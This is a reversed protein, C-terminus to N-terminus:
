QAVLFGQIGYVGSEPQVLGATKTEFKKLVPFETFGSKRFGHLIWLTRTRDEWVCANM